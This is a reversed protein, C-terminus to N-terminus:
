SITKQSNCSPGESDDFDIESPVHEVVYSQM